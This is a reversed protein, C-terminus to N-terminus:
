APPSPEALKSAAFVARREKIVLTPVSVQSLMGSVDVSESDKMLRLYARPSMGTRFAAGLLQAREADLFGASWHAVTLTFFEWDEEAIGALARVARTYASASYYDSGRAYAGWLVLHTVKSPHRVAYAVAPAGGHIRGVLAFSEPGMRNVVGELDRVRAELSFDLADRDSSGSGRGDFFAVRRGGAVLHDIEPQGGSTYTNVDGFLVSTLVVVPGQGLVAYAISVGDETKAYQIRPQQATM